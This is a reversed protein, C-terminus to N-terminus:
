RRQDYHNFLGTINEGQKLHYGQLGTTLAATINELTDDIFLTEGPNVVFQSVAYEFVKRDPKIMGIRFSFCTKEFLEELHQYGYQDTLHRLYHIYHIENSNSLLFIRYETRLSELLRIRSAPIGIVLANWADDIMKDTLHNQYLCRISDRFRGPSLVGKELDIVLRDFEKEIKEPTLGEAVPGFANFRERTIRPDIDCIVGGFDFIINKISVPDPCVFPLLPM